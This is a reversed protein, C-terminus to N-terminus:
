PTKTLVIEFTSRIAQIRLSCIRNIIKIKIRDKLHTESFVQILMERLSMFVPLFYDKSIYLM